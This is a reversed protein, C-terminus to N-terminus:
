RVARTEVAMRSSSRTHADVRDRASHHADQQPSRKSSLGRKREQVCGVLLHPCIGMSVACGRGSGRVAVVVGVNSPSRNDGM